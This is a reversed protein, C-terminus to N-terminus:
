KKLGALWKVLTDLEADTGKWAKEHKKGDLDVEKKIWKQLWAPDREAGVNSLDKGKGSKLKKEIAQSDISHCMNCKADLFVAKGDAPAAAAATVMAALLLGVTALLALFLVSRM